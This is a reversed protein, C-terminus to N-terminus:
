PILPSHLVSRPQRAPSNADDVSRAIIVAGVFRRSALPTCTGRPILERDGPGPRRHPVCENDGSNRERARSHGKTEFRPMRLQL